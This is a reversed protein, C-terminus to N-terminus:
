GGIKYSQAPIEIGDVTVAKKNHNIYIKKGNSYTVAVVGNEPIEHKTMYAGNVQSLAENVNNYVEISYDKWNDYTTSYMRNIGTLKMEGSEEKTFSFHPSAGYEILNLVIANKDSTDALNIVYGSYDICGHILMEYFPVSADIVYYDNDSVPANIIDDAYKFSYDNGDNVMINRGTDKMLGIQSTVVDLAQERNIVNTRRKDSHLENGLDRLSIGSVKVDEFKEIFNETYRVLFKPSVLYYLNETYGLGSTQRLSTPNVLGFEAIFGTGYYRSTENSASYRSSVESVKQFACDVYLQGGIGEMTKNLKELDSEGGLKRPIKVKNLVDHYYGGASWGQYLMVQNNIGSAQLDKAINGAEDFSTMVYLARHQTGLIYETKEVGGIIDYYMKIDGSGTAEKLVGEKILRERYYNAAGSYSNYEGTLFTYRIKLQTDYFKKEVIPLDAESGTTGMMSLKDNGRLVFTAFVNNYENVEGAVNATVNALSAGDEITALIGGKERFIGFLSLKADETVEVVTYEASLPDIGYIYESYDNGPRLKGKGNNFNIISGSGNPVLMYGQEDKGGAGFFGLLQIKYISGGGNEKVGKMPVTAEVYDDKLTYDIPIEFTIPVAGEVGSGLMEREYDDQTFGAEEFYNNLKRVQSPGKAASELLELYGDAVDSKIYKKKVFSAGTDSMKSLLDNLTDESIYQPVIGTESTQDGITYIIRIGDPISQPELQKFAVSQSYSDFISELRQTNFYTVVLQSKLYNKNTGNAIGDSDADPPNSYTVEGTRKDYIAIVGNETDAYMKLVDSEAALVMGDVNKESDKLAKFETGEAYEYDTIYKKYGNYLAYKILYRVGWVAVVLLIALIIFLATKSIKFKKKKNLDLEKLAKKQEKTKAM